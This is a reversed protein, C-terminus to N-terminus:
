KGRNRNKQKVFVLVMSFVLLSVLVALPVARVDAWITFPNKHGIQSENYRILLWRFAFYSILLTGLAATFAAGFAVALPHMTKVNMWDEPM